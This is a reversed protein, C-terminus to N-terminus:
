RRRSSRSPGLAVHNGLALIVTLLGGGRHAGDLTDDIGLGTGGAGDFLGGLELREFGREHLHERGAGALRSERAEPWRSRSPPSSAALLFASM